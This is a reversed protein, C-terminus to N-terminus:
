FNGCPNAPCIRNCSSCCSLSFLHSFFAAAMGDTRIWSPHKARQRRGTVQYHGARKTPQGLLCGPYAYPYSLITVCLYTDFIQTFLLYGARQPPFKLFNNTYSSILITVHSPFCHSSFSCFKNLVNLTFTTTM